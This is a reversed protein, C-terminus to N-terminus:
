SPATSTAPVLDPRRPIGGTEPMALLLVMLAIGGYCRCNTLFAPNYRFHVVVLGLVLLALVGGLPVGNFSAELLFIDM